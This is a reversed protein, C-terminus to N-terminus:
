KSHTKKENRKSNGKKKNQRNCEISLFYATSKFIFTTDYHKKKDHQQEFALSLPRIYDNPRM